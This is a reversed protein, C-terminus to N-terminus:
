ALIAPERLVGEDFGWTKTWQDLVPKLDPSRTFILQTDGVQYVVVGDEDEDRAHTETMGLADTYFRRMESLDNCWEFM